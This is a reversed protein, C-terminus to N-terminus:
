KEEKPCVSKSLQVLEKVEKDEYHGPNVILGIGCLVTAHPYDKLTVQGDSCGGIFFLAMIIVIIAKRM